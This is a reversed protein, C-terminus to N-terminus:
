ETRAPAGDTDAPLARTLLRAERLRGDPTFRGFFCVETATPQKRMRAYLTYRAAILDGSALAEHVEVRGAILNKRVPRVHAVLKERDIRNGDAFQVFGPAHYRDVVTGPDEEGRLIDDTFSTLFDAIFRSPDNTLANGTGDSADPGDTADTADPGDPGDPGRLPNM